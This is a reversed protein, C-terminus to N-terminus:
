PSRHADPQGRARARRIGYIAGAALTLALGALLAQKRRVAADHRRALRALKDVGYSELRDLAVGEALAVLNFEPEEFRWTVLLLNEDEIEGMGSAILTVNGLREYFAPIADPNGAVDGAIVFFRKGPQASLLPHVDRWYNSSALNKQRSRSNARVAAYRPEEALWLLEHLFIFVTSIEEAENLSRRLFDIQAASVAREELQSDLVIFRVGRHDFAYFTRGHRAEIQRRCFAKLEHNGRVLYAPMGLEGLETELQRWSTEDCRRLFDGTLVLLEVASHDLSSMKALFPPHLAVNDGDHAGYAHGAVVFSFDESPQAAVFGALGASVVAFCCFVTGTSM